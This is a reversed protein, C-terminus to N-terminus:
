LGPERMNDTSFNGEFPGKNQISIRNAYWERLAAEKRREAANYRRCSLYEARYYAVSVIFGAITLAIMLDDSTMAIM